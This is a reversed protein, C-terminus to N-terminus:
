PKLLRTCNWEKSNRACYITYTGLLALKSCVKQIERVKRINTIHCLHTLVGRNKNNIFGRAGIELPLNVCKFGKDKIDQVLFEYRDKKESTLRTVIQTGPCM